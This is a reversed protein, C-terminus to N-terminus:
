VLYSSRSYILSTFESICTTRYVMLIDKLPYLVTKYKENDMGLSATFKSDDISTKVRDNNSHVCREIARTVIENRPLLLTILVQPVIKVSFSFYWEIEVKVIM